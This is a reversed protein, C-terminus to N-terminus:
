SGSDFVTGGLEYRKLDIAARAAEADARKRAVEGFSWTMVGRDTAVAQAGEYAALEELVKVAQGSVHKKGEGMGGQGSGSGIDVASLPGDASWVRSYVSRRQNELAVERNLAAVSMSRLFPVLYFLIAFGVPVLGLGVFVLQVPDSVPLFVAVLRLVFLHFGFFPDVAMAGSGIAGMAAASGALFYGGFALNVLNFIGFWRDSARPNVSFRVAPRERVSRPGSDLLAKESKLLEPFFYYITGGSTVEPSGEFEVLFRNIAEEAALPAYGTLSMFEELVIVGRRSRVFAVFDKRLTDDWEKRGDGDGFVFSFVAKHLPRRDRTKESRRENEFAHREPSKWVENYFWIRFILEFLRGVLFLGGDGRSRKRDGKGATSAAVSAVLALVALALFLVFYGVLMVAIWAKFAFVAVAKVGKGLAGLFRAASPGFGRYRSRMGGAFSYKIEGSETVRLRAGYEDSVARVETQVQYNPLGTAAVLDAVTAEGKRARFAGVLADRVVGPNYDYVRKQKAM